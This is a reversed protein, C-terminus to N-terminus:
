GSRRETISNWKIVASFFFIFSQILLITKNMPVWMESVDAAYHLEKHNHHSITCISYSESQGGDNKAIAEFIRQHFLHLM